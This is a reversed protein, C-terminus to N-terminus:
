SLFPFVVFQAIDKQVVESVAEVLGNEYEVADQMKKYVQPFDYELDYMCFLKRFGPHMFHLYTIHRKAYEGEIEMSKLMQEVDVKAGRRLLEMCTQAHTFESIVDKSFDYTSFLTDCCFRLAHVCTIKNLLRREFQVKCESKGIEKFIALFTASNQVSYILREVIHPTLNGGYLKWIVDHLCSPLYTYTHLLVREPDFYSDLISSAVNGKPIHSQFFITVLEKVVDRFIDRSNNCTQKRIFESEASDRLSNILKCVTNDVTVYKAVLDCIFKCEIGHEFVCQITKCLWTTTLFSDDSPNPALFTITCKKYTFEVDSNNSLQFTDFLEKCLVFNAEAVMKYLDITIKVHESVEKIAEGKSASNALHESTLHLPLHQPFKAYKVCNTELLHIMSIDNWTSWACKHLYTPFHECLLTVVQHQIHKNMSQLKTAYTECWYEVIHSHGHKCSLDLLEVKDTTSLHLSIGKYSQLDGHKVFAFYCDKDYPVHLCVKLWNACEDQRHDIAIALISSLDQLSPKTCSKYALKLEPLWGHRAARRLHYISTPQSSVYQCFDERSMKADCIGNLRANKRATTYKIEKLWKSINNKVKKSRMKLM